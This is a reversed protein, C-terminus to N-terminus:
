ARRSKETLVYSTLRGESHQPVYIEEKCMYGAAIAENIIKYLKQKGMQSKAHAQLQRFNIKWGPTNSLLYIILLRCEFSISEDRILDNKIMTYPNAADHPCRQISFDNVTDEEHTM